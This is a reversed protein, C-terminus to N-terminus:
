ATKDMFNWVIYENQSYGNQSYGFRSYRFFCGGDQNKELRPKTKM